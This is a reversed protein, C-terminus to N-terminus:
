IETGCCVAVLLFAAFIVNILTFQLIYSGKKDPLEAAVLKYSILSALSAELTGLGGINVGALLMTYNDTFGSLLVAAPVNSILQSTLFATMLENGNIISELMTSVASIRGLYGVFIFFCVFMMLLSYDVRKFARRDTILGGAIAAAVPVAFHIARIVTLLSLVLLVIYLMLRKIYIDTEPLQEETDDNMKIYPLRKKKVLMCGAVLLLFSILTYPLMIKLFEGINMGYSSYIYLNQPNGVPTLMSGLNAAVTQLIAILIIYESAQSKKLMIIGLPVFTILAVDNTILMSSFFCLFVLIFALTRINGARRMLYGAIRDLVGLSRFGSVTFMLSFLLALVRFDIYNIIDTIINIM